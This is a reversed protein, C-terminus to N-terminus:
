LRLHLSAAIGETLNVKLPKVTPIKFFEMFGQVLIINTVDTSVYAGGGLEEDSLNLRQWIAYDLQLSDYIDLSLAKSIAYYHVGGIGYVPLSQLQNQIEESAKQAENHILLKGFQYDIFNVPNPSGKVFETPQIINQIEIVQNKFPVSALNSFFYNQHEKNGCMIQMSSGGIDWMCIESNTSRSKSIAGIFGIRAEEEQSIIKIDFGSQKLIDVALQGNPAQRFASTAVGEFKEAGCDKAKEYFDKLVLFGNIVTNYSLSGTEELDEKYPIPVEFECNNVLKIDKYECTNVEYVKLKTTGSGLDLAAVKTFCNDEAATLFSIFISSYLFFIKM